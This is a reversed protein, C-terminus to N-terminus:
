EFSSEYIRVEYTTDAVKVYSPDLYVTYGEYNLQTPIQGAPQWQMSSEYMKRSAEVKNKEIHRLHLWNSILPFTITLVLAIVMLTYLSELLLFGKEKNKFKEFKLVGM